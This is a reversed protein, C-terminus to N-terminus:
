WGKGGCGPVPIVLLESPVRQMTKPPYIIKM